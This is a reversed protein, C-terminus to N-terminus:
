KLRATAARPVAPPQRGAAQGRPDRAALWLLWAPRVQLLTVVREAKDAGSGSGVVLTYRCEAASFFIVGAPVFGPLFCFFFFFAAAPAAFLEAATILGRVLDRLKPWSQISGKQSVTSNMSASVCSSPPITPPATM